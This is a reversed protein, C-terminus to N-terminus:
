VQWSARNIGGVSSIARFSSRYALGLMHHQRSWVVPADFLRAVGVAHPLPDSPQVGHRRPMRTGRGTRARSRPWGSTTWLEHPYGLDKAKRCALAVLRAKAELTITPERGPRPRDDLAAMPGEAV